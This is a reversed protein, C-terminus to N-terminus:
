LKEEKQKPYPRRQFENEPSAPLSAERGSTKLSDPERECIGASRFACSKGNRSTCLLGGCGSGEERAPGLEPHRAAFARAAYQVWVWGTLALFIILIAILTNM